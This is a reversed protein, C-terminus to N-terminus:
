TVQELDLRRRFPTIHENDAWGRKYNNTEIEIPTEDLKVWENQLHEIYNRPTIRGLKFVREELQKHYRPQMYNRWNEGIGRWFGQTVAHDAKKVNNENQYLRVQSATPITNLLRADTHDPRVPTVYVLTTETLYQVDGHIEALLGYDGAWVCSVDFDLAIDEIEGLINNVQRWSPVGPIITFMKAIVQEYAANNIAM